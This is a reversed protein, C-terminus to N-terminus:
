LHQFVAFIFLLMPNCVRKIYEKSGSSRQNALKPVGVFFHRRFVTNQRRSLHRVDRLSVKNQNTQRLHLM